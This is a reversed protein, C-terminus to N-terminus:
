SPRVGMFGKPGFLAGLQEFSGPKLNGNASQSAPQQTPPPGGEPALHEKTPRSSKSKKNKDPFISLQAAAEGM